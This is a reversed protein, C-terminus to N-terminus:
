GSHTREKSRTSVFVSLSRIKQLSGNVLPSSAIFLATDSVWITTVCHLDLLFYHAYMFPKFPLVERIKALDREKIPKAISYDKRSKDNSKSSHWSM